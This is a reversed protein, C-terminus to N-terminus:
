AQGQLLGPRDWERSVWSEFSPARLPWGLLYPAQRSGPRQQGAGEAGAGPVCLGGENVLGRAEEEGLLGPPGPGQASVSGWPDDEVEGLCMM